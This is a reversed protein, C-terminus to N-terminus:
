KRENVRMAEMQQELDWTAGGDTSREGLWTFRSSTINVFSWRLHDDLAPHLSRGTQVIGDRGDSRGIFVALERSKPQMWVVHWDGSEADYTRISTGYGDLESGTAFLVDQVGRGGIIREFYWEGRGTRTVRSGNRNCAGRGLSANMFTLAQQRILMM